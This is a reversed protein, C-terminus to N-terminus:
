EHQSERQQRDTELDTVRKGREEEKREEVKQRTNTRIQTVPSPFTGMWDLCPPPPAVATNTGVTEREREREREREEMRM